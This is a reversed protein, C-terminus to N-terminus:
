APEAFAHIVREVDFAIGKKARAVSKSSVLARAICVLEGKQSFVAVLDGKEIGEDLSIIGPVALDAGRTISPLAFDSAVVRKLKLGLVDEAQRLMEKLPRTERKNKYLWWAESLEQLTVAEGEDFGAASTRRLEIMRGACGLEKGLDECLVRMYTGAQVEADFLVHRGEVELLRIEYVERERLKRVVAAREPPLQMIKGEFKKLAAEVEEKSKEEGLEALCVYSKRQQMLFNSIKCAQNLMVPLVGSADYDLTGSHGGKRAGLIRRAWEAVKHSTPGIPKDIPIVAYELMESVSRRSPAKGLKPRERRLVIM